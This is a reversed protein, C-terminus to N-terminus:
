VVEFAFTAAGAVVVAKRGREVLEASRLDEQVFALSVVPRIVGDVDVLQPGNDARLVKADPDLRVVPVRGDPSDPIHSPSVVRGVPAVEQTAPHQAPPPPPTAHAAAIAPPITDGAVFRIHWPESQLEWSWGFGPAHALLWDLTHKDISEPAPDGDLEAGADVALGLGHNSKGPTAATANGPKLWWTRGNWRKSSQGAIYTPSYRDLFLDHQETLSRYTGTCTLPVGDAHAAVLMQRWSRAAVRHLRQGTGWGPVPELLADPLEGNRVGALDAPLVVAAIPLM